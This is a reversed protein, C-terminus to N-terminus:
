AMLRPMFIRLFFIVPFDSYGVMCHRRFSGNWILTFSTRVPSLCETRVERNEPM